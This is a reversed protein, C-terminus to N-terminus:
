PQSVDFIKLARLVRSGTRAAFCHWFWYTLRTRNLMCRKTMNVTPQAIKVPGIESTKSCTCVRWFILHGRYGDSAMMSNIDHWLRTCRAYDSGDRSTDFAVVREKNAAAIYSGIQCYNGCNSSTPSMRAYKLCSRRALYKDGFYRFIHRTGHHSSYNGSVKLRIDTWM